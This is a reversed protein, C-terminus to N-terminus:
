SKSERVVQFVKFGAFALSGFFVLLWWRQGNGALRSRGPSGDLYQVAVTPGAPRDADAAITDSEKRTAGGAEKFQYEVALKEVRRGRRGSETTEYVRVLKADAQKGVVAYKLERWSFFASVVFVLGAVLLWKFRAMENDMDM